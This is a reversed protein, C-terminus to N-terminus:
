CDIQIQHTPVQAIMQVDNVMAIDRMDIASNDDMFDYLKETGMAFGVVCGDADM